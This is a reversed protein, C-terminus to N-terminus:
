KYFEQITRLKNQFNLHGGIKNINLNTYHKKLASKTIVKVKVGDVDIIDYEPLKTNFVEVHYQRAIKNVVVYYHAYWGKKDSFRSELPIWSSLHNFADEDRDVIIDIDKGSYLETEGQLYRAYSGVIVYDVADRNLIQLIEKM